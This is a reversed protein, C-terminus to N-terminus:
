KGYSAFSHSSVSDDFFERKVKVDREFRKLEVPIIINFFEAM